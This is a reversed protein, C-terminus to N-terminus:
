VATASSILGMFSTLLPKKAHRRSVELLAQGTEAPHTMAQPTLIALVGDCNPDDMLAAAAAAYRAEDADGGLDVPNGRAAFSPLCERLKADTEPSLEALEGGLALLRDTAMVAPGGANTVI